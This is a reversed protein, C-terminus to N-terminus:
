SSTCSWAQLRDCSILTACHLRFGALLATAVRHRAALKWPRGAPSGGYVPHWNCLCRMACPLPNCLCLCRITPVRVREVRASRANSKIIARLVWEVGDVLLVDFYSAEQQTYFRVFHALVDPAVQANAIQHLRDPIRQTDPRSGRPMLMDLRMGGAGPEDPHWDTHQVLARTGGRPAFEPAQAFILTLQWCEFPTWRRSGVAAARAVNRLLATRQQSPVVLALNIARSRYLCLMALKAALTPTMQGAHLQAAHWLKDLFRRPRLMLALAGDVADEICALSLPSQSGSQTDIDQLARNVSHTSTGARRSQVHSQMQRM